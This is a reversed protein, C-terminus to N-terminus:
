KNNESIAQPDPNYFYKRRVTAVVICIIMFMGLYGSFPYVTNVLVDFPVQGLGFAAATIVVSLIYFKKSGEKSIKSCVTYMMPAATSFIGCLLVISFLVALIPSVSEALYLTPVSLSSVEDGRILLAYNMFVVALMLLVGGIYGGSRAELQTNATAGLMYLFPIACITNYSSYLIGSIAWNPAAAQNSFADPNIDSFSNDSLIMSGVAVLISFIIIVPGIFGIIDILRKMGLLLVALVLLSMLASGVVHNLGYYENLVSGSGSIMVVVIGFIFLHCFIDYFTGLYKGSFVSYSNSSLAERHMYGVKMVSGGIFAFVLMCILISGISWYGQATFFQVIEQGTAYGSGILYAIYAGAFKIITIFSSKTKM